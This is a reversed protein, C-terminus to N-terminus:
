ERLTSQANKQRGQTQRVDGQQNNRFPRPTNHFQGYGHVQRVEEHTMTCDTCNHGVEGCNHCITHGHLVYAGTEKQLRTLLQSFKKTVTSLENQIEKKWKNEAEMNALFTTRDKIPRSVKSGHSLQELFRWADEPDQLMITRSSSANIMAQNTTDVGDYFFKVLQWRPFEHHPCSTM